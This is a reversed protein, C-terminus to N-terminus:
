RPGRLSRSPQSRREPPEGTVGCDARERAPSGQTWATAAVLRRDIKLEGADFGLALGFKAAVEVGQSEDRVDYVAREVVGFRVTRRVLTRLDGLVASPWPLRRALLPEAAARNAEDRLDLRAITEVVHGDRAGREMTRFALERLGAADRTLEVVAERAPPGDFRPDPGPAWVRGDLVDVRTRVYYTTLGRGVRVGATADATSEVGTLTVGGAGAEAEASLVAGADGFRWTPEVDERDEAILFRVAAAADPFEWARGSGLGYDVKGDVGLDIGLPSAEIGFGIKAGVERREARTILVSGDSRRAATWGDDAGMRLSLVTFRLSQGRAHEAVTCPSLGAAAADSARCVDGAVICIGTRLGAAVADAITGLGVATGAAALAGTVLALLAAYETTTQGAQDRADV